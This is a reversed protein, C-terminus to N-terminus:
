SQFVGLKEFFLTWSPYVVVMDPSDFLFSSYTTLRGFPFNETHLAASCAVLLGLQRVKLFWAPWVGQIICLFLCM